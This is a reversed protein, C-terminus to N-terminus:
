KTKASEFFNHLAAGYAEIEAETVKRGQCLGAMQAQKKRAKRQRAKEAELAIDIMDTLTAHNKTM